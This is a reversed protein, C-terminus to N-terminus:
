LLPLYLLLLCMEVFIILESFVSFVQSSDLNSVSTQVHAKFLYYYFAKKM